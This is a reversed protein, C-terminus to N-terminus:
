DEKLMGAERLIDRVNPSVQASEGKMLNVHHRGIDAQIRRNATIWVGPEDASVWDEKAVLGGTGAVQTLKKSSKTWTIKAADAAKVLDRRDAGANYQHLMADCLDDLTVEYWDGKNWVTKHAAPKPPAPVAVTALNIFDSHGTMDSMITPVGMAVTQLPMLGFGEGRSAAVFCDATAYLDYEEAVTLWSDVVKINPNSINPAEGKVTPPIKLILEADVLHLAEFAAVVIDLGKRLWSSGGAVFRFKENKPAPCPKWIKPDIGLPVRGVNKHYQSFLDVNHLSPVIIQDFQFLRDAFSNPLMSTEWMTFVVRKQGRHWGRVMDPQICSVKVESLPNNEVTKPLHKLLSLYMNGYGFHGVDYGELCITKLGPGNGGAV